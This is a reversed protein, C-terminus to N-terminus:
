SLQIVLPGQTSGFAGGPRSAGRRIIETFIHHNFKYLSLWFGEQRAAAAAAASGGEPVAFRCLCLKRWIRNCSALYRRCCCCCVAPPGPLRRHPTTHLSRDDPRLNVLAVECRADRCTAALRLVDRPLELQAAILSVVELPLAHWDASPLRRVHSQALPCSRAVLRAPAAAARVQCRRRRSALSTSPTGGGPTSSSPANTPM